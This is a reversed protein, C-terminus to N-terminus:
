LYAHCRLTSKVYKESMLTILNKERTLSKKRFNESLNQTGKIKTSYMFDKQNLQLTVPFIVLCVKCSNKLNKM